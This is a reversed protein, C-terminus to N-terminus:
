GIENSGVVCNRGRQKATYLARDASEVVNRWSELAGMERGSVSTHGISVTVVGATTSSPHPIALAKTAARVREAVTEVNEDGTEPMLVLFEEGGYRYASDCSRIVDRLMKAVSTLARDGAIHGLTDNYAKFHDIDLLIVSYPNGYRRCLEHIEDLKESMARRNLLGTLGDSISLQELKANAARLEATREMVAVELDRGRRELVSNLASQVDMLNMIGSLHNKDDVIPVRRFRRENMVRMLEGMSSSECLTHIPSTMVDAAIM